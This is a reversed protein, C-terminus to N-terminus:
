GQAQACRQRHNEHRVSKWHRKEEGARCGLQILVFTYFSRSRIDLKLYRVHDPCYTDFPQLVQVVKGYGGEGITEMIDFDRITVGKEKVKLVKEIKEIWEMLSRQNAAELFINRRTVHFIGFTNPRTTHQEATALSCEALDVTGKRERCDLYSKEDSWYDLRQQYLVFYRQQWRNMLNKGQKSLYGVMVASDRAAHHQATFPIDCSLRSRVSMRLAPPSSNEPTRVIFLILHDPPQM